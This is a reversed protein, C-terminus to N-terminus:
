RGKKRGKKSETDGKVSYCLGTANEWFVEAGTPTKCVEMNWLFCLADTSETVVLIGDYTHTHTHTHTHFTSGTGATAM